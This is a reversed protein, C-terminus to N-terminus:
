HGQRMGSRVHASHARTLRVSRIKNPAAANANVVSDRKPMLAVPAENDSLDDSLDDSMEDSVDEDFVELEPADSVAKLLSFDEFQEPAIPPVGIEEMLIKADAFDIMTDAALKMYGLIHALEALPEEVFCSSLGYQLDIYNLLDGFPVGQLGGMDNAAAAAFHRSPMRSPLL